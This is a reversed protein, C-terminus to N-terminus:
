QEIIDSQQKDELDELIGAKDAVYYAASAGLIVTTLKPFLAYSVAAVGGLTLEKWTLHVSVGAKGEVNQQEIKM